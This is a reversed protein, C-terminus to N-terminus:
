EASWRTDALLTSREALFLFDGQAMAGDLPRHWLSVIDYVRFGRQAMFPIVDGILPMGKQLEIFSVELLVAEAHALCRTAGRLCDLEAGQLDLKILDPHPLNLKAVLADLTTISATARRGWSKGHADPLMSSQDSHVFYEVDGERDGVLTKAVSIGPLEAALRKLADATDDRPDVCLLKADPWIRKFQRAWSGDAAGGDVATSVRLGRDRAKALKLATIDFQGPPRSLIMDRCLLADKVLQRVAHM